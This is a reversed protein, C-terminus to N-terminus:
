LTPCLKFHSLVCARVVHCPSGLFARLGRWSGSQRGPAQNSLLGRGWGLWCVRPDQTGLSPSTKRQQSLSETKMVALVGEQGEQPARTPNAQAGM